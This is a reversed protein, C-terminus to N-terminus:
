SNIKGNVVALGDLYSIPSAFEASIVTSAATRFFGCGGYV